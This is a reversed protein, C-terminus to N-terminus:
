GLNFSKLWKLLLPKEKYNIQSSYNYVEDLERDVKSEDDYLTFGQTDLVVEMGEVRDIHTGRFGPSPVIAANANDILAVVFPLTGLPMQVYQM